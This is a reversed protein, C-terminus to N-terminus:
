IFTTPMAAGRLSTTSPTFDGTSANAYGPDVSLDTADATVNSYDTNNNWVNNWGWAVKRPDSSSTAVKIGFKGSTVHNTINNNRIIQYIAGNSGTVNVGNALNANITNGLVYSPVTVVM